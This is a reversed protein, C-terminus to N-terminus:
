AARIVSSEASNLWQALSEIDSPPYYLNGQILNCGLTALIDRDREDEVVTAVVTANLQEAMSIVGAVLTQKTKDSSLDRCL